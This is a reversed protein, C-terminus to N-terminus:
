PTPSPPLPFSRTVSDRPSDSQERIVTASFTIKVVKYIDSVSEAICNQADEQNTWWTAELWNDHVIYGHGMIIPEIYTNTPINKIVYFTDNSLLYKAKEAPSVFYSLAM